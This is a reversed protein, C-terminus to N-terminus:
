RGYPYFNGVAGPSSQRYGAYPNYTSMANTMQSQQTPQLYAGSQGGGLYTATQSPPTYGEPNQSSQMVMNGAPPSEGGVASGMSPSGGFQQGMSAGAAAGSAIQGIQGSGMLYKGTEGRWPSYLTKLAEIKNHKDTEKKKEQAVADGAAAGILAGIITAAGAGM